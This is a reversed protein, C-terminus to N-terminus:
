SNKPDKLYLLMNDALLSLKVEEKGIQILKLELKKNNLPMFKETCQSYELTIV